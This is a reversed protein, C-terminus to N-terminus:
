RETITTSSAGGMPTQTTTTQSIGPAAQMPVHENVVTQRTSVAGRPRYFAVYVIRELAWALLLYVIMAIFTSIELVMGGAAPAGILSEFPKVFIGTTAYLFSAFNNEANVGILKFIIRLALAAELLGVLLWIVQTAKFTAFRQGRGEEHQTTRVDRYDTM